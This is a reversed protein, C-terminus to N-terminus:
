DKRAGHSKKLHEKYTMGLGKYDVGCSCGNPYIEDAFITM